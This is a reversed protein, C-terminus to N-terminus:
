RQSPFPVLAPVEARYRAYADPFEASMFHEEVSIKCLFAATILALALLSRWEGQAIVSGAIALLLGTYIPHRTWRYPGTRILEHGQKLTVVASWNAGLHLRAFVSWLLGAAIMVAGLWFWEDGRPLFRANLWTGPLGQFTLLWVGILLPTNHLLRSSVSEQRITARTRLAAAGWYLLWATWMGLILWAHVYRM